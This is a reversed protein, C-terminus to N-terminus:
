KNNSHQDYWPKRFFFIFVPKTLLCFMSGFLSLHGVCLDNNKVKLFITKSSGLFNNLMEIQSNTLLQWKVDVLKHKVWPTKKTSYNKVWKKGEGEVWFRM